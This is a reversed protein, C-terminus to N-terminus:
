LWLMCGCEFRHALSRHYPYVRVRFQCFGELPLDGRGQLDAGFVM